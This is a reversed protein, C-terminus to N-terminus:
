SLAATQLCYIDIGLTPYFFNALLDSCKLVHLLYKASMSIPGIFISHSLEPHFKSYMTKMVELEDDIVVEMKEKDIKM